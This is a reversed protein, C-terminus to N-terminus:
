LTFLELGDESEEDSFITRRKGAVKRNTKSRKLFDNEKQLIENNSNLSASLEEQFSSPDAM